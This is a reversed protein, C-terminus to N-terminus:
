AACRRGILIHIIRQIASQRLYSKKGIIHVLPFSFGLGTSLKNLPLRSYSAFEGTRKYLGMPPREDRTKEHVFM